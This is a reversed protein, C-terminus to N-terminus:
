RGFGFNEAKKGIILRITRMVLRRFKRWVPMFYLISLFITVMITFIDLTIRAHYDCTLLLPSTCTLLLGVEDAIFGLGIGFLAAAIWIPRPRNSILSIWNSIILLVLGYYFHHIHYKGIIFSLSPFLYAVLRTVTFSTLFAIFVIFPAILRRRMADEYTLSVFDKLLSRVRFRM